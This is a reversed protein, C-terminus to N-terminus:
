VSESETVPTDVLVPKATASKSKPKALKATAPKVPATATTSKKATSSSKKFYKNLIKQLDVTDEVGPIVAKVSGLHCKTVVDESYVKVRKGLEKIPNTLELARGKLIAKRSGRIFITATKKERLEVDTPLAIEKLVILNAM